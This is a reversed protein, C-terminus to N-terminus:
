FIWLLKIIKFNIFDDNISALQVRYFFVLGFMILIIFIFVVLITEQIQLQGKKGNFFLNLLGM